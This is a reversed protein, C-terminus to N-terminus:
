KVHTKAEYNKNEICILKGEIEEFRIQGKKEAVKTRLAMARKDGRSMAKWVPYETDKLMNIRQGHYTIVIYEKAVETAKVRAPKEREPKATPKDWLWLKLFALLKKMNLHIDYNECICFDRRDRLLSTSHVFIASVLEADQYSLSLSKIKQSTM